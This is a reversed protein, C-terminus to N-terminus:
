IPVYDDSHCLVQCVVGVVGVEVLPTIPTSISIANSSNGPIIQPKGAYYFAGFSCEKYQDENNQNLQLLVQEALQIYRHEYLNLTLLETPFRCSKSLPFVALESARVIFQSYM